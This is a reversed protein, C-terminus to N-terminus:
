VNPVSTFPRSSCQAQSADLLMPGWITTQEPASALFGLWSFRWMAHRIAPFCEVHTPIITLTTNQFFHTFILFIHTFVT